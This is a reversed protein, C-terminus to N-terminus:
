VSAQDVSKEKKYKETISERVDSSGLLFDIGYGNPYHLFSSQEPYLEFLTELIAYAVACPDVLKRNHLTLFVGRCEQDMHKPSEAVGPIHKPTFTTRKFTVNGLDRANLKAELVVNDVWPAGIQEFPYGTGRGESYNTGELLVTLPYIYIASLRTLNPSPAQFYNKFYSDIAQGKGVCDLVNLKAGIKENEKKALEVLSSGHFFPVKLWSLFSRYPDQVVPGLAGWFYLPNPRGLVLVDVNCKAAEELFFVM